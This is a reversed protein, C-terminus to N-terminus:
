IAAKPYDKRLVTPYLKKDAATAKRVEFWDIGVWEKLTGEDVVKDYVKENGAAMRLNSLEEAPVEAVRKQGNEYETQDFNRIALRAGVILESLAHRLPTPGVSDNLLELKQLQALIRKELAKDYLGM